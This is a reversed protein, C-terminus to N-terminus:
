SLSNIQKFKFAYPIKDLTKETDVSLILSGSFIQPIFETDEFCGLSDPVPKRMQSTPLHPKSLSNLKGWWWGREGGPSMLKLISLLGTPRRLIHDKQQGEMHCRLFDVFIQVNTSSWIHAWHLSSFLFPGSVGCATPEQPAFTM